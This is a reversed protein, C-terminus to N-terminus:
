FRTTMFGEDHLERRLAEFRETDRSIWRGFKALGFVALLAFGALWTWAFQAEGPAAARAGSYLRDAIWATFAIVEAVLIAWGVRWATRMRRLRESSIMVYDAISTASSRLVGRRNWWGFIVAAITISALLLMAMREVDNNSTAGVYIVVPLAILGIVLDAVAFSWLLSTRRSVYRRIQSTSDAPEPAAHWDAIWERLDVNNDTM